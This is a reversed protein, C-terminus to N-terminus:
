PRLLHTDYFGNIGLKGNDSLPLEMPMTYEVEVPRVYIASEWLREGFLKGIPTKFPIYGTLKVTVQPPRRPSAPPASPDFYAQTKGDAGFLYPLGFVPDRDVEAVIRINMQEALQRQRLLYVQQASGIQQDHLRTLFLNAQDSDRGRPLAPLDEFHGPLFPMWNRIAADRIRSLRKAGWLDSRHEAPLWVITSRAAAAASYRLGITAILMNTTELVFLFTGVVIPVLLMFQISVSGRQDKALGALRKRTRSIRSISCACAWLCLLSVIWLLVITFM